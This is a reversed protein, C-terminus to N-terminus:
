VILTISLLKKPLRKDFLKAGIYLQVEVDTIILCRSM